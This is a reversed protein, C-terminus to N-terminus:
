GPIGQVSVSDPAIHSVRALVVDGVSVARFADAAPPLEAIEATNADPDLRGRIVQGPVFIRESALGPVLRDPYVLAPMARQVDVLARGAIIGKVPATAERSRHTSPVQVHGPGLGAAHAAAMADGILQTLVRGERDEGWCFRLPSAYMDSVWANDVAYARAAGGYTERGPPLGGAFAYTM